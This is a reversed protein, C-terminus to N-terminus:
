LEGMLQHLKNTLEMPFLSRALSPTILKCAEIAVKDRERDIWTDDGRTYERLGVKYPKGPALAVIIPPVNGKLSWDSVSIVPYEDVTIEYDKSALQAEVLSAYEGIIGNNYVSLEYVIVEKGKITKVTTNSTRTDYLFGYSVKSTTDKITTIDCKTKKRITCINYYWTDCSYRWKTM